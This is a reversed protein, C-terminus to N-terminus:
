YFEARKAADAEDESVTGDEDLDRIDERDDPLQAARIMGIARSKAVPAQATYHPAIEAALLYSMGLSSDAPIDGTGITLSHVDELYDICATLVDGAFGVMDATANEDTALVGLHRHAM